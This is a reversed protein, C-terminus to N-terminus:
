GYARVVDSIRHCAPVSGIALARLAALITGCARRGVGAVQQTTAGESEQALVSEMGMMWLSTCYRRYLPILHAGNRLSPTSGPYCCTGMLLCNLDPMTGQPCSNPNCWPLTLQQRKLQYAVLRIRRNLQLTTRQGGHTKNKRRLASHSFMCMRQSPGAPM